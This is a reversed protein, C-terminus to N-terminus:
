AQGPSRSMSLPSGPVFLEKGTTRDTVSVIMGREHLNPEAPYRGIEVIPGCAVQAKSLAEICQDVTNEAAWAQVAADVEASHRVRDAIRTYRPDTGLEERGMIQTLRLW